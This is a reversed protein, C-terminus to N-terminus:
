IASDTIGEQYDADSENTREEQVEGTWFHFIENQRDFGQIGWKDLLPRDKENMAANIMEGTPGHRSMLELEDTNFVDDGNEDKLETMESALCRGWMLEIMAPTAKGRERGGEGLQVIAELTAKPKQWKERLEIPQHEEGRLKRM